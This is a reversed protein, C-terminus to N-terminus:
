NNISLQMKKKQILRAIPTIIAISIVAVYLGMNLSSFIYAWWSGNKSLAKAITPYSFVALLFFSTAALIQIILLLKVKVRMASLGWGILSMIIAGTATISMWFAPDHPHGQMNVAFIVWTGVMSSVAYLGYEDGPYKLSLLSCASWVLPLLWILTRKKM